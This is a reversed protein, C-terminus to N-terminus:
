LKLGFRRMLADWYGQRDAYTGMFQLSHDTVNGSTFTSVNVNGSFPGVVTGVAGLALSRPSAAYAFMEYRDSLINRDLPTYIGDVERTYVGASADWQYDAEKGGPYAVDGAAKLVQNLRWTWLDTNTAMDQPNFFNFLADAAQDIDALYGRGTGDFNAYESQPRSADDPADQDIVYPHHFPYLRNAQLLTVGPDFAEAAVASQSAVYTKVLKTTGSLRLAESAVVNGM